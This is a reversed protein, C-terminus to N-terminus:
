KGAGGKRLAPSFTDQEEKWQRRISLVEDALQLLNQKLATGDNLEEIHPYSQPLTLIRETERECAPTRSIMEYIRFEVPGVERKLWHLKRAIQANCEALANLLASCIFASCFITKGYKNNQDCGRDGLVRCTPPCCGTGQAHCRSCIEFIGSTLFFHDLQAILAARTLGVAYTLIPLETRRKKRACAVCLIFIQDSREHRGQAFECAEFKVGTEAGCEECTAMSGVCNREQEARLQRKSHVLRGM